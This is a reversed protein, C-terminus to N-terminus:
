GEAAGTWGIDHAASLPVVVINDPTVGSDAPLQAVVNEGITIDLMDPADESASLTVDPEEDVSDDWVVLLDDEAVDYGELDTPDTQDLWASAQLDPNAHQEYVQAAYEASPASAENVMPANLAEIEARLDGNGNEDVVDDFREDEPEDEDDGSLDIFAVAGVAMVGLLGTLWLM